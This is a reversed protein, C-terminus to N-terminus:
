RRSSADAPPRFLSRKVNSYLLGVATSCDLLSRRYALSVGALFYSSALRASSALLAAEFARIAALPDAGFIRSRNYTDADHAHTQAGGDSEDDRQPGHRRRSALGIELRPKLNNAGVDFLPEVGLGLQFRGLQRRVARTVSARASVVAPDATHHEIGEEAVPAARVRAGSRQGFRQNLESSDRAM